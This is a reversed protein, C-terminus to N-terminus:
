NIIEREEGSAIVILAGLTCPWEGYIPETWSALPAKSHVSM